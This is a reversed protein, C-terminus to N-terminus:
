GGVVKAMSAERATTEANLVVHAMEEAEQWRRRLIGLYEERKEPTQGEPSAGNIRKHYEQYLQEARLEFYSVLEEMELDDFEKLTMAQRILEATFAGYRERLEDFMM